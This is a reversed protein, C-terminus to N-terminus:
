GPAWRALFDLVKARDYSKKGEMSVFDDSHLLNFGAGRPTYERRWVPYVTQITTVEQPCAREGAGSDEGPREEIPSAITQECVAPLM